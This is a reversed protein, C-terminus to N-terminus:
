LYSEDPIPTTRTLTFWQIFALCRYIQQLHREMQSSELSSASHNICHRWLFYLAICFRLRFNTAQRVGQCLLEVSLSSGFGLLSSLCQNVGDRALVYGSSYISIFFLILLIFM